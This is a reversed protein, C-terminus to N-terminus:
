PSPPMVVNCQWYQQLQAHATSYRLPLTDRLMSLTIATAFATAPEGDSDDEVSAHCAGADWRTPTEFLM